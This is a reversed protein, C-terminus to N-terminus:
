QTRTHYTCTYHPGNWDQAGLRRVESARNEGASHEYSGDNNGGMVIQRNPLKPNQPWSM